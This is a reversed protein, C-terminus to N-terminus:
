GLANVAGCLGIVLKELAFVAKLKGTKIEIDCNLLLKLRRKMQAPPLTDKEWAYRLGGLIREPREGEELLQNLIRLASDAKKLAIQRNLSFTNVLIAENFRLTKAYRYISSLFDDKRDAQELDLVLILYKPPSAAFKLIFEKVEPKLGGAGKIIVLRKASGVPLCLFKEQLGNLSLERGYLIDLNFEESEKPLFEQKIKKLQAEKAPNDQGIFLYTM